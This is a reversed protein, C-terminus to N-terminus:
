GIKHNSPKVLYSLGVISAEEAFIEMRRRLAMRLIKLFSVKENDTITMNMEASVQEIADLNEEDPNTHCGETVSDIESIGSNPRPNIQQGNDALSEHQNDQKRTGRVYIETSFTDGESMYEITFPHSM